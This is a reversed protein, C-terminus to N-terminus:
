TCQDGAGVGDGYGAGHMTISKIAPIDLLTPVANRQVVIMQFFFCYCHATAMLLLTFLLSGSINMKMM